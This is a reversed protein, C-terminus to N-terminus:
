LASYRASSKCRDASCDLSSYEAKGGGSAEGPDIGAGNKRIGGVRGAAAVRGGPVASRSAVSAMVVAASSGPPRRDRRGVRGDVLGGPQSTGMGASVQNHRKLGARHARYAGQKVQEKLKDM